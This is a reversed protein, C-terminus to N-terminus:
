SVPSPVDSPSVRRHILVSMHGPLVSPVRYCSTAWSSLCVAYSAKLRPQEGLSASFLTGQLSLQHSCVGQVRVPYKFALSRTKLLYLSLDALIIPHRIEGEFGLLKLGIYRM